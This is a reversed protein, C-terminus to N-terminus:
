TGALMPWRKEPANFPSQSSLGTVRLAECSDSNGEARNISMTAMATIAKQQSLSVWPLALQWYGTWKFEIEWGCCWHMLWISIALSLGHFITPNQQPKRPTQTTLPWYGTTVCTLPFPWDYATCSHSMHISQSHGVVCSLTEGM